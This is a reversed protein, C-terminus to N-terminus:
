ERGIAETRGRWSFRGLAGPLDPQRGPLMSSPPDARAGLAAVLVLLFAALGM